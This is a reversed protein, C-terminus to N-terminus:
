LIAIRGPSPMPGSIIRSAMLTSFSTSSRLSTFNSKSSAALGIEIVTVGEGFGGLFDAVLGVGNNFAGNAEAM